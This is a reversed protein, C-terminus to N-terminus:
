PNLFELSKEFFQKPNEAHLWHGAGEIDELRAQPFHELILPLDSDLVYDSREGRLFLTPGQYRASAPLAEGVEEIKDKLVPYNFRLGLKGKEVWYLSKSLFQRISLSKLRKALAEDAEGRSKIRDFDLTGLADLIAQHEPPYAKPGIDAVLLRDVMHPHSAALHMATKGGMSHGLVRASDLGHHSMYDVLDRAMIPYDFAPSHFSKGHNRQDVLHVQLGQEAYLKGLGNWNDSMGLFGHLVILPQGQGLIKSHLPEMM